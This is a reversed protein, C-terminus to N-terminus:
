SPCARMFEIYKKKIVEIPLRQKSEFVSVMMSIDEDTLAIICKRQGAWLDITNKFIAKPLPNRTIIIGFRGFQNNLYRNLQNIHDREVKAVNKLEMVIQRSEYDDYIDKLFDFSRNNYFILDRILVGTDTRSQEAAFDLHPYLLSAMLQCTHDEFKRDANDTKGTPLKLITSLKRKASLVPIPKFLPDNKCDTQMREKEKVYTQVMDYNRRNYNLVEVRSKIDKNEVEKIFYGNFYDEYSIWPILRLWRKPVLLVSENTEPNHPLYVGDESVFKNSRYEYLNEIKTKVMPISHKECQEMTYDILFSKLFNSSIDSIRDKSIQDVFLQIEEFHVFGRKNIQPIEKFLSLINHATKEGIRAGRKTKSVGLGVESCESGRILIDIAEKERGKELLYGLNNFSNTIATHLSNDQMSPSKWLLFPDVYLPIDEDLFPIAFDVEEQTLSINYFDTLRPRVLGM